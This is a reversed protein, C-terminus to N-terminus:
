DDDDEDDALRMRVGLGRQRRRVEVVGKEQWRWITRRSVGEREALERPKLWASSVAAGSKTM